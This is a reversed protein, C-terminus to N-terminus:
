RKAAREAAVRGLVADGEQRGGQADGLGKKTMSSISAAEVLGGGGGRWM